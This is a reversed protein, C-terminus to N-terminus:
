EKCIYNFKSIGENNDSKDKKIAYGTTNYADIRVKTVDSVAIDGAVANMSLLCGTIVVTSLLTRYFKM